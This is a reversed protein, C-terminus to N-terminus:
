WSRVDSSTAIRLHQEDTAEASVVVLMQTGGSQVVDPAVLERQSVDDEPDTLTDSSDLVAM